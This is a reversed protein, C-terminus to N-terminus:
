GADKWNLEAGEAKPELLLLELVNPGCDVRGVEFKLKARLPEEDM